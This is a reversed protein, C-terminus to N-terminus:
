NTLFQPLLLGQRGRRNKQFRQCPILFNGQIGLLTLSNLYNAREFGLFASLEELVDEM